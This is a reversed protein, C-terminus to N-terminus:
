AGSGRKRRGFATAGATSGNATGSKKTTIRARIATEIDSRLVGYRTRSQAALEVGDGTAEPLPLTSGTVPRQTQSDVSLRLAVEYAPLSSIDSASLPAFRREFVKADDYDLQFIVSSRATGLVSRRVAEPLQGLHQHALTLGVGLGRAQAFMDAVDLPLRLIDQFEDLYVFVPHRKDAAISARKLTAQWLSAVLLAGLLQATDTGVAGKSLKVLLIKRQRLVEALDIGSSQGLMLRLPTRTTLARLKNLAPGIIQMRQADGQQEYMNWFPRVVEPVGAQSTVLRRFNPNTLLEAVEVLTFASSDSAHTHTLTLLANRLVDSTRPGWSDAWLSSFIHVVNDVVLERDAESRLGGLLNFGVIPLDLVAPDIVIVDERRSEPIRDLIDDILDSKPDVVVLGHGAQVDQIAMNAILTSKGTGTPGILYVHQLRDRARLALPTAMGPYNSHALVTGTRPTGPSPPLQRSAHSGLGPLSIGNCPLGILGSLENVNLLLPWRTLPWSRAALRKAVLKSPLKRRHLLVGPANMGRLSAATKTILSRARKNSSANAGIRLVAWLLPESEKSRQAQVHENDRVKSSSWLGSAANHQNHASAPAHPTDAGSLCWSLRLEEGSGLPQLSALLAANVTPGHEVALPRRITTLGMELATRYRPSRAMYAPAEELRAGPLGARITSLLQRQAKSPILIYHQIGRNSAVVELFLPVAPHRVSRPAHHNAAVMGLWQAIEETSLEPVHLVFAILTGRLARVDRRRICVLGFYLGSGIGLVVLAFMV